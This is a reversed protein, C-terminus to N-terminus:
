MSESAGTFRINLATKNESPKQQLMGPQRLAGHVTKQM